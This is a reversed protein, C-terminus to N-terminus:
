WAGMASSPAMAGQQGSVAQSPAGGAVISGQQGSVDQASAAVLLACLALASALKAFVM